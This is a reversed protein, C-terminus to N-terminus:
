TMLKTRLSLQLKTDVTRAENKYPTCFSSTKAVTVAAHVFLVPAAAVTTRLRRMGALAHSHSARPLPLGKLARVCQKSLFQYFYDVRM